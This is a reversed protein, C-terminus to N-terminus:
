YCPRNPIAPNRCPAQLTTVWLAFGTKSQLTTPNAGLAYNLLTVFTTGSMTLMVGFVGNQMLISSKEVIYDSSNRVNGIGSDGWLNSIELSLIEIVNPNWFTKFHRCRPCVLHGQTQQLFKFPSM